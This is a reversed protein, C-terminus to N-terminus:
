HVSSHPSSHTLSSTASHILSPPFSHIYLPHTFSHIFSHLQDIPFCSTGAGLPLPTYQTAEGGRRASACAFGGGRRGATGARTGAVM